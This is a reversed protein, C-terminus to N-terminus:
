STGTKRHAAHARASASGRRPRGPTPSDASVKGNSVATTSAPAPATHEKDEEPRNDLPEPELRAVYGAARLEKILRQWADDRASEAVSNLNAIAVTPSLRKLIYRRTKRSAIMEDLTSADEVEILTARRIAAKKILRAWDSISHAVNQPLNKGTNAQLFKKIEDPQLGLETARMVSEKSLIYVSVRDHRVLDAMKLLSWLVRSDPHLVLVEFNAQVLLSKEPVSASEVARAPDLLSLGQETMRFSVLRRQKDWGLELTGLWYLMTKLMDAIIRGEIEFWHSRFGQLARLGFRRVLEEQSWILYPETLHIKRLFGDVSIWQGVPLETLRLALRKRAGTLDSNWWYVTGYTAPETWKRDEQWLAYLRRRQADFSLNAWEDVKQGLTLAPQDGPKEILLGLTQALHVIVDIYQSEAKMDTPHLFMENLKKALRRTLRTDQLTLTLDQQSASAILTLLDWTMEYPLRSEAHHPPATELKPQMFPASKGQGDQSNKILDTPVFLYRRDASLADWVLARQVLPVLAMRFDRAGWGFHKRLQGATTRGGQQEIYAFAQQSVQPLASLLLERGQGTGLFESMVGILESKYYRTVDPLKWTSAVRRVGDEELNELLTSFSEEFPVPRKNEEIVERLAKGAETAISVVRRRVAEPQAARGTWSYLNDGSSVVRTGRVLVEDIDVLGVRRAQELLPTVEDIPRDLHAPLDDAIALMNRQNLLWCVFARVEPDLNEWVGRAASSDVMTHYVAIALDNQTPNPDRTLTGWEEAIVKLEDFPRSMLRGLLNKM